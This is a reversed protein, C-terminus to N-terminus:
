YIGGQTQLFAPAPLPQRSPGRGRRPRRRKAHRRGTQAAAGRRGAGAARSRAPPLLPAARNRPQFAEWIVSSKPDEVTPFAGFVRKGTARDIRVMRIGAPAVFPIKPQDKFAAQALQKFIPAAIRGGQAYGGMRGRSTTASTSARRRNGAHRRRVLRQDPGITTGTKGFLPRNLDRLVTATGREVVGEMIHVMQFAAM